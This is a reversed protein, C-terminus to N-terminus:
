MLTEMVRGYRHVVLFISNEPTCGCVALELGSTNASVVQFSPQVFYFFM